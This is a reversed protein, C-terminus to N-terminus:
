LSQSDVTGYESILSFDKLQAHLDCVVFSSLVLNALHDDGTALTDHLMVLYDQLSM